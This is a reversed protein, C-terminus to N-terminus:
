YDGLYSSPPLLLFPQPRPGHVSIFGQSIFYFTQMKRGPAALEAAPPLNRAALSVILENTFGQECPDFFSSFQKKFDFFLFNILDTQMKPPLAFYFDHEEVLMNFDLNFADEVNRVVDSYLAPSIFLVGQSFELKQVWVGLGELRASLLANFASTRQGLQQMKYTMASFFAVGTFELLLTFLYENTNGPAGAYDGYGVTTVAQLVWYLAFM